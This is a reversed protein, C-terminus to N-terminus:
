ASPAGLFHETLLRVTDDAREFPFAHGAGPLEVLRAGPILRALRRSNEPPVLRDRDGTLVLTPVRVLPLRREAEHLAVAILQRRVVARRARSQGALWARFREPHGAYFEDSVLLRAMARPSSSLRALSVLVLDRAASLTPKRSRFHGGFTAGLALARVRAPHRLALEQAIMGGMSIGFVFAREVGAADLVRAADDALDRIRFGRALTSRGVGRNDFVTVRFREALRSPLTHWAASCLGLGMVLLLPPAGPAGSTEFHIRCGAHELFPM